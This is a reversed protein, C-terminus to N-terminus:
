ATRDHTHRRCIHQILSFPDNPRSASTAPPPLRTSGAPCTRDPRRRHDRRDRRRGHRAGWDTGFDLWVTQMGMAKAPTLNRASDEFFVARASRCRLDLCLRSLGFARAQAYEMAHIDWLGEFCHTIDLADLV